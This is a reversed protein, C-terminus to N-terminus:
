SQRTETYICADSLQCPGRPFVACVTRRPGDTYWFRISSHRPDQNMLRKRTWHWFRHAGGETEREEMLQHATRVAYISPTRETSSGLGSGGPRWWYLTTTDVGNLSIFNVAGLLSLCSMQILTNDRIGRRLQRQGIQIRV